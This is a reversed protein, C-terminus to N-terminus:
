FLAMKSNENQFDFIELFVCDTISLKFIRHKNVNLPPPCINKSHFLHRHNERVIKDMDLEM